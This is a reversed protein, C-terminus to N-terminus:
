ALQNFRWNEIIKMHRPEIHASTWMSYYNHFRLGDYPASVLYEEPLCLTKAVREFHSYVQQFLFGIRFARSDLREPYPEEAPDYMDMSVQHAILLLLNVEFMSIAGYQRLRYLVLVTLLLSSPTFNLQEQDILDDSCVWRLLQLKRKLLSKVLKPDKSILNEVKPPRLTSPLVVPVDVFTYSDYHDRKVVLTVHQREQRHHYLLVGGWRAVIPEIIAFYNGLETSRYDFFALASHIPMGTLIRYAFIQEAQILFSFPDEVTLQTATSPPEIQYFAVSQQFWEFAETPLRRNRYVRELISHVTSADLQKTIPLRRVYEALKTFKQHHPGLDNLFPELEDYKVFKNGALTAWIAMQQRQLGLTQLLAQRNFAEAVLTTPNIRNAHWLQWNGAFILFDTNHTIVALANHKTAYIALAQDCELETTFIVKGHQKAVRRLKLSTNSPMNREYKAAVKELPERADIADLIEIMLDYKNNQRTIWTDYNRVKLQGNMFFVLEAGTDTLRQFFLDITREARRIQMGCLSGRSDSCFLGFLAMLEIVILPKETSTKANCIEREMQVSYTGNQLNKEMFTQLHRIGM